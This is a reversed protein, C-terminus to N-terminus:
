LLRVRGTLLEQMMGQKIQRAKYLKRELARIEADFEELITCVKQIEDDTPAIQIEYKKLWDLEISEVTTGAKLCSALITENHYILSQTVFGGISPKTPILAKIDQNIAVPKTLLCVPLFRRLIGSRTVVVISGKPVLRASSESIARETICRLEEAIEGLRIDASSAWPITGNTWYDVRAM